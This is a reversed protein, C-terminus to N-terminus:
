DGQKQLNLSCYPRTVAVLMHLLPIYICRPAHIYIYISIGGRLGFLYTNTYIYIYTYMYTYINVYIYVYIYAYM